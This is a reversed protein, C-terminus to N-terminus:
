YVGKYSQCSQLIPLLFQDRGKKVGKIQSEILCVKSKSLCKTGNGFTDRKLRTRMINHQWHVQSMAVPVAQISNRYSFLLPQCCQEDWDKGGAHM